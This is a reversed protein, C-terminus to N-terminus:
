GKKKRTLGEKLGVLHAESLKLRFYAVAAELDGTAIFEVLEGELAELYEAPLGLPKAQPRDKETQATGEETTLTREVTALLDSASIDLARALKFLTEVTPQQLGREIQSIYARNVSSEFALTEQSLQRAKRFGRIIRGLAAALPTM